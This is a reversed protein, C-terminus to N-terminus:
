FYTFGFKRIQKTREELKLTLVFSLGKVMLLTFIAASTIKFLVIFSPCNDKSGQTKVKESHIFSNYNIM